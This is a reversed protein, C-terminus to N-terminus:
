SPTKIPMKSRVNSQRSYAKEHKNEIQEQKKEGMWKQLSKLEEPDMQEQLYEPIRPKTDYKVYPSFKKKELYKHHSTENAYYKKLSAPDPTM